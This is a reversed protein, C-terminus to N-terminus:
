WGCVSQQMVKDNWPEIGADETARGLLKNWRVFMAPDITQSEHSAYQQMTWEMTTLKISRAISVSFSRCLDTVSDVTRLQDFEIIRLAANIANTEAVPARHPQIALLFRNTLAWFALYQPYITPGATALTADDVAPFDDGVLSQEWKDRWNSYRDLLDCLEDALKINQYPPHRHLVAETVKKFLRPACATIAWISVVPASRDPAKDHVITAKLARQWAPSSLFCDRNFFIAEVTQGLNSIPRRFYIPHAIYWYRASRQSCYRRM